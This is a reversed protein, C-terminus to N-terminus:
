RFTSRSCSSQRAMWRWRNLIAATRARRDGAAVGGAAEALAQRLVLHQDHQAARAFPDAAVAVASRGTMAERREDLNDAVQLFITGSVAEATYIRHRATNSFGRRLPTRRVAGAPRRSHLLVARQERRSGPLNSIRRRRERRRRAGPEDLGASRTSLSRRRRAAHPARRNGAPQQRFRTSNRARRLRRSRRRHDLVPDDFGYALAHAKPDHAKWDTASAASRRSQRRRTEQAAPQCCVEVANAKSNRASPVLADEIRARSVISGPRGLLSDLVAWERATLEVPEGDRSIRREAPVIALPGVTMHLRQAPRLAKSGCPHAGITRRSRIAEGSLRRRRFEARRHPRIDPRPRHTRDGAHRGRAAALRAFPFAAATRCSSISCCLSYDAVDAFGRAEALTMAWDVAHADARQM